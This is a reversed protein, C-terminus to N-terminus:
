VLARITVLLNYLEKFDLKVLDTVQLNYLEKFDLKKHM